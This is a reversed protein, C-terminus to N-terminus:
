VRNDSEGVMEAQHAVLMHIMAYDHTREAERLDYENQLNMWFQATTGLARSFRIATDVTIPREGKCIASIRSRPVGIAAALQSQSVDLDDLFDQQLLKGPHKMRLPAGQQEM